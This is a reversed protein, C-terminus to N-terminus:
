IAFLISDCCYEYEFRTLLTLVNQFYKERDKLTIKIFREFAIETMYIM